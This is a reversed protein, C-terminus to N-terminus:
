EVILSHLEEGVESNIKVLFFGKCSSPLVLETGEKEGKRELVVNGKADYVSVNYEEIGLKKRIAFRGLSPNPYLMYNTTTTAKKLNTTSNCASYSQYSEYLTQTATTLGPQWYSWDFCLLESTHLNAERLQGEIRSMSGPVAAFSNTNIPWGDTQQFVEITAGFTKGKNQCAQKIASFYLPIDTDVEKTTTGVGDQVYVLDIASATTLVAEWWAQLDDAPRNPGFFPAIMVKKANDKGKAYAAVSQLFSALLDRNAVTQWELDNIEQPIYWGKFSTHAAVKPWVEDIMQQDKSLLGSYTTTLTKDATNWAEDFYLGLYVELGAADAATLIRELTPNSYTVFGLSSTSYWANDQYIGYQIIFKDMCLDKMQEMHTNWQSQSWQGCQCGTSNWLQIFAGSLTPNGSVPPTYSTRQCLNDVYFHKSSPVGANTVYIRWAGIRNLDLTGIGGGLKSFSSYPMELTTWAAFSLISASSFQYIEDGADFPNGNMNQDEYLMFIFQDQNGTTGLVDISLKDPDLSLDLTNTSYSRFIESYNGSTGNLSYNIKLSSNGETFTTFDISTTTSSANGSVFFASTTRFNDILKDSSAKTPFLFSFSFLFPLIYKIM